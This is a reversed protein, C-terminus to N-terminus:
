GFVQEDTEVILGHKTYRFGIWHDPSPLNADDIHYAAINVLNQIRKKEFEEEIAAAFTRPRIDRGIINLNIENGKKELGIIFDLNDSSFSDLISITHYLLTFADM